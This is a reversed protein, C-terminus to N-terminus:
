PHIPANGAYINCVAHQAACQAVLDKMGTFWGADNGYLTTRYTPEHASLEVILDALVGDQAHALQQVARFRASDLLWRARLRRTAVVALVIAALCAVTIVVTVVISDFTAVSM